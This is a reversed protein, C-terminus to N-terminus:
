LEITEMNDLRFLPVQNILRFNHKTFLGAEERKISRKSPKELYQKFENRHQLPQAPTVKKKRKAM